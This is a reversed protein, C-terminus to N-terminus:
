EPCDFTTGIEKWGYTPTGSSVTCILAWVGDSGPKNHVIWNTGNNVLIDGAAGTPLGIEIKAEDSSPESVIATIGRLGKVTITDAPAVVNPTGESDQVTGINTDTDTDFVREFLYFPEDGSPDAFIDVIIVDGVSLSHSDSAEAVNQADVWRGYIGGEGTPDTPSRAATTDTWANANGAYTVNYDHEKVWYHNTAFDAEGDPGLAVIEAPFSSVSPLAFYYLGRKLVWISDGVRYGHQEGPSTLVFIYDYDITASDTELDFTGFGGSTPDGL